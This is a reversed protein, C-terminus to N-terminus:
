EEESGDDEEDDHEDESEGESETTEIGRDDDEQEVVAKQKASAAHKALAAHLARDYAELFTMANGRQVAMAVSGLLERIVSERSWTVLQEASADAMAEILTATRPGVGGTTELAIPLQVFRHRSSLHAYKRNKTTEKSKATALRRAGTTNRTGPALPHCVVVDSLVTRGPLTLLLDPRLSADESLGTVERRARIGLLQACRSVQEAVQDHRTSIEGKSLKSCTLFHWPDDRISRYPVNKVDACVPCTDPLEGLEVGDVPPLGLNLRAALRYQTDTLELERSTPLVTKWTWARPASVATLHALARGGDTKKMDTARQLSAKHSSNTAQQSLEHQLSSTTLITEHQFFVSPSPPLLAECEPAADVLAAISSAIWDYLQTSSPLPSDPNSYPAFTPACAVAALSGLYAAPSTQRASALGFGGHRLPARLREVTPRRKAEDPHLLLKRQAAHMVHTDFSTALQEICPPPMCRLTYNMKPVGCQRLVLMASQVSLEDLQLRQFFAATGDDNGLTAAVGARIAHEDRGVVSGVVELWDRHLTIDREALTALVAHQLPAEADHFYAFHSKATNLQLGISPLLRQLAHLAKVVEAPEGSVNIDDFFGHLEVHAQASVEALTDRLYLCFLVASLADGQRVGNRSLLHQGDCGQLLLQTPAAYAFDAIRWMASLAPQEYLVRLARARDCSNFANSIDLKLLAHRRGKDTLTHQLSHVIREAGSAVGVGQQHPALLAAAASTVKRMALKGALRAFLEGVAIPRYKGETKTLAVLRSAMLLQRAREPLNGNMIDKLLAIVGARCLDSQALSSLMNGGWGSPGSASGNDSARLLAAMEEDDELIQQPADAPLPPIVSTNPLAPHLAAVAQQVQLERLDAMTATSHLARAAQQLHGKRVHWQARKAAKRDPDATAEQTARTFARVYDDDDHEDSCEEHDNAADRAEVSPANRKKYTSPYGPLCSSEM